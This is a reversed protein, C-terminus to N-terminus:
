GPGDMARQQDMWLDRSTQQDGQDMWLERSTERTWAEPDDSPRPTTGSECTVLPCQHIHLHASLGIIQGQHSSVLMVASSFARSRPAEPTVPSLMSLPTFKVDSHTGRIGADSEGGQLPSHSIWCDRRQECLVSARLSCYDSM